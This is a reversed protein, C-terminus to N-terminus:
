IGFIFQMMAPNVDPEEEDDEKGEADIDFWEMASMEEAIKKTENTEALNDSFVQFRMNLVQSFAQYYLTWRTLVAWLVKMLLRDLVMTKLRLWKLGVAQEVIKLDDLKSKFYDGVVLNVQHAFCDLVIVWPHSKGYMKRAKRSEGAADATIAAVTIKYKKGELEMVVKNLEIYLHVVM